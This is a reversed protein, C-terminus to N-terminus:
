FLLGEKAKNYIVDDWRTLRALEAAIDPTLPERAVPVFGPESRNGAATNRHPLRAPLDAGITAGLAKLWDDGREVIGVYALTDLAALADALCGQPDAALRDEGRSIAYTGTLRRVYVNDVFNSILPDDSRLFELLSLRHAAAVNFNVKLSRVLEPDVSKWFHYLSVIRARPERLITVVPRTPDLRRFAPLDYHGWVLSHERLHPATFAPFASLIHPATAREPDDDIQFPHFLATLVSAFSLGATKEFHLFAVPRRRWYSLPNGPYPPIPIRRPGLDAPRRVLGQRVMILVALQGLSERGAPVAYLGRLIPALLREGEAFGTGFQRVEQLDPWRGLCLRLIPRSLLSAATALALRRWSSILSPTRKPFFPPLGGPAFCVVRMSRAMPLIGAM